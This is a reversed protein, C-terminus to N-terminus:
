RIKGSMASDGITVMAMDTPHSLSRTLQIPPMPM